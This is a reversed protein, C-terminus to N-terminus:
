KMVRINSRDNITICIDAICPMQYTSVGLPTAVWLNLVKERGTWDNWLYDRKIIISTRHESSGEPPEAQAEEFEERIFLRWPQM